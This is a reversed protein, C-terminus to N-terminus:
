WRKEASQQTYEGHSYEERIAFSQEKSAVGVTLAVPWASCGAVTLQHLHHVLIDVSAICVTLAFGTLDEAL